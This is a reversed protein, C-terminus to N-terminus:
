TLYRKNRGDPNNFPRQEKKSLNGFYGYYRNRRPILYNSQEMLDQYDDIGKPMMASNNFQKVYHEWNKQARVVKSEAGEKNLWFEREFRKWAIYYTIANICSTDDPVMPYGNEDIPRRLYSIAVVGEKFSFRLQNDVITYEETGGCNNYVTEDKCVLSNFYSHNSLRVIDYNSHNSGVYQMWHGYEYQLDYYPRYYGVEYDGVIKGQCDVTLLNETNEGGNSIINSAAVIEADVCETCLSDRTNDKVIQTVFNLQQPIDCQYNKVEVFAVAENLASPVEIFGLAEGAWEILDTENTETGRFDRSFKALVSDISVFQYKGM